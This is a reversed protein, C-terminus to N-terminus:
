PRKEQPSPKKYTQPQESAAKATGRQKQFLIKMYREKM